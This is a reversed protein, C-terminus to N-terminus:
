VKTTTDVPIGAEVADCVGQLSGVAAATLIDMTQLFAVHM